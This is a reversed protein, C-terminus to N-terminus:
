RSWVGFGSESYRDRQSLLADIAMKRTVIAISGDERIEPKFLDNRFKHFVIHKSWNIIEWHWRDSREPNFRAVWDTYVKVIGDKVSIRRIRGRLLDSAVHVEIDGGYWDYGSLAEAWKMAKTDRM